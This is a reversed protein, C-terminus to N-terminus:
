SWRASRTTRRSVPSSVSRSRASSSRSGSRSTSRCASARWSPPRASSGHRRRSALSLTQLSLPVAAVVCAVLPRRPRLRIATVSGLVAGVGFSTLIAAWPGAGGLESKAIVPGLVIWGAFMFNGLGFFLFSAWLWPLVLGLATASGIDLVAFALAIGALRDGITTISTAAFLLRFNREHLAGFRHRFPVSM